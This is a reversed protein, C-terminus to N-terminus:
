YMTVNQPQQGAEKLCFHKWSPFVNKAYYVMLCLCCCRGWEPLAFVQQSLLLLGIVKKVKRASHERSLAALSLFPTSPSSRPCFFRHAGGWAGLGMPDSFVWNSFSLFTAQCWTSQTVMAVQHGTLNNSVSIQWHVLCEFCLAVNVAVM